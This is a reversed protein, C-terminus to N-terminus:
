SICERLDCFSLYLYSRSRLGLVKLTKAMFVCTGKQGNLDVFDVTKLPQLSPRFEKERIRETFKPKSISEKM